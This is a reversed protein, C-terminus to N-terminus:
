KCITKKREGEEWWEYCKNNYEIAPKNGERHLIGDKFWSTTSDPNIMAPKDDDRHIKGHKYWIKYGNDCVVAPEDDESHLLGAEDQKFECKERVDFGFKKEIDVDFHTRPDFGESPVGMNTEKSKIGFLEDFDIEM